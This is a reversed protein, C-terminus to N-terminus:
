ALDVFVRVLVAVDAVGVFVLVVVRHHRLARRALLQRVDLAPAGVQVM